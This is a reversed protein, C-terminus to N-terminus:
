GSGYNPLKERGCQLSQGEALLTWLGQFLPGTFPGQFAVSGTWHLHSGGPKRILRLGHIIVAMDLPFSVNLSDAREIMQTQRSTKLSKVDQKIRFKEQKQIELM